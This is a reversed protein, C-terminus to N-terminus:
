DLRWKWTQVDYGAPVRRQRLAQNTAAEPRFQDYGQGAVDVVGLDYFGTDLPDPIQPRVLSRAEPPLIFTWSSLAQGKSGVEATYLVFADIPDAASVTWAIGSSTSVDTITPVRQTLDITATGPPLLKLVEFRGEEAFVISFLTGDNLTAPRQWAITQLQTGREFGDYTTTYEGSMLAGGINVVADTPVNQLTLSVDVPGSWTGTITDTGGGAVTLPATFYADEGNAGVGLAVAIVTRTDPCGPYWRVVVDTSPNSDPVICPGRIEYEGGDPHPPVTVVMQGAQVFAPPGFWLEDGPEVGAVTVLNGGLPGQRVTVSDGATVTLEVLGDPGTTETARLAGTADAHFVIATPDPLGDFQFRRM